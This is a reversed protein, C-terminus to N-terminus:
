PTATFLQEIEDMLPHTLKAARLEAFDELVATEWSKEGVVNRAGRHALYIARAEGVRGLFMLAHARNEHLWLRDPALAVVQDAADLATAFDDALVLRYALTGIRDITFQLDNRWQMNSPDAKALREIIALSDRFSTLADPLNGQAVLVAGVKNYSVSLDRQWGANNPDTKALREAIALSKRFAKLASLLNGQAVLVDGVKNHSVSLDRQWGANNPDAKALRERIALGDRFSTLAEPLNGQAVLVDGIKIYSVTLDRQWGANNSDAKALREAIALSDHFSELADPLNGQAVLMDGIKIYSVALDRQWGANNPDAKALRERIALGDRFSKLAEPLNGQAVLVDGVRDYSVTLDRQWGANNPDAKALREAIALGDRFSKLAAPLNGQAEQVDGIRDYSVSLDRQWRANNPDAKALREAIALGDRFAKLAEPLNGQAVLVDGVRDYWVALDRQWGANNPDAKALREAIALGDRFAKLAEPLNGQAVLVAGIKNRSVSLDRQRGANNPDAKALREAIALGDRYAKLAELLNGQAVLVDGVADYAVSLDRQYTLDDTKEAALGALLRQAENARALQKGTDGLIAYNRAFQILMWAKRYRLEPTPRGYQAMDDFLGEAKILLSLTATRPVNYKEAQAVAEDVIETARKLTANLFAENTKLQQWAYAASGSAAVALFLFVGALAAWFRNKRRRAREARRVIEDLGLGLLGAVVKQKAIEKGDGQERVDAAIPEEPEGTLTGDAALKFRLAPPFCEREADGPEGDVIVPIVRAARGMARFRRIEENVYQSQAANPSCLVLLFQSAELAAITQETLSPGASFDDRDRFIPRLTKPVPGAPTQRGVLDRDIRYDELARHLWNGWAKDRHSYSLFARYRFPAAETV